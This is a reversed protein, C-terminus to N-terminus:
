LATLEALQANTLRTKFLLAQMMPEYLDNSGLQNGLDFRSCAPITGATGAGSLIQVGDFYVAYDGDKYAAAIKHVGKTNGYSAATEYFLDGSSNRVYFDIKNTSSIYATIRNTSTGDNLAFIRRTASQGILSQDYEVFVTGETQGILSSIGTKYAADALRTVSAGLTTILSTEYSGIERQVGWFYAGSTGDGTYNVTGGSRLYCNFNTGGTSLATVNRIICRFWGDGADIMAAEGSGLNNIAGTSLNFVANFNIIAPNGAAILIEDREAAKIYISWTYTTGSTYNAGFGFFHMNSATTDEILKEAEQYGTPAVAANVGWSARYTSYNNLATNNIVDNTRQPELKFAPCGGSYDLRPVNATPGVSVAASTTPIYQTPGFDSIELQSQYVYFTKAEQAPTPGFYNGFFVGGSTDTTVFSFRTWSTTLNIANPTSGGVSFGISIASDAKIWCSVTKTGAPMTIGQYLYHNGGASIDVKFANTGGNPDSYGATVTSGSKLWAANSFDNSYLALNQRVKEVLGDANVRTANSNRTFTLEGDTSLPKQSYVKGAKYGSPVMVLSAQDYFQSM